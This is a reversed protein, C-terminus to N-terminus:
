VSKCTQSSYFGGIRSVVWSVYLYPVLYTSTNVKTIFVIRSSIIDITSYKTLLLLLLLLLKYV